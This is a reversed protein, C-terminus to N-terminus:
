IQRRRMESGEGTNIRATKESSFDLEFRKLNLGRDAAYKKVIIKM